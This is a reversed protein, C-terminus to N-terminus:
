IALPTSPCSPAVVVSITATPAVYNTWIFTERASFTASGPGMESISVPITIQTEEDTFRAEPMHPQLFVVQSLWSLLPCDPFLLNRVPPLVQTTNLLGLPQQQQQKALLTPLEICPDSSTSM